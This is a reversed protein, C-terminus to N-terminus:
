KVEIKKALDKRFDLKKIKIEHWPDCHKKGKSKKKHYQNQKKIKDNLM